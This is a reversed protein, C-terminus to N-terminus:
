SDGEIRLEVGAQRCLEAVHDNDGHIEYPHRYVIQQIGAGVLLTACRFCPRHLVYVVAGEISVGTRAAQIVANAEAHITRLCHGEVMLHGVDDCHPLGRPAGNYGSALVRNKPNAIVCGTQLRDCTGRKSWVEALDLFTKEFSPRDSM